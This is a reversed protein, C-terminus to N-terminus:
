YTGPNEKDMRDIEHEGSEEKEGGIESPKTESYEVEAEDGYVKVVKLVVEDGEKPADPHKGQLVKMPVIATHMNEAEEEDMSEKGKPSKSEDMDGGGYLSNMEGEDAAMMPKMPM